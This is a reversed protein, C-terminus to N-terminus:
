GCGWGGWGGRVAHLASLSLVLAEVEGDTPSEEDEYAQRHAAPMVKETIAKGYPIAAEAAAIFYAPAPKNNGAGTVGSHKMSHYYIQNRIGTGTVTGYREVIDEFDIDLFLGYVM